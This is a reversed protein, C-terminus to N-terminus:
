KVTEKKTACVRDWFRHMGDVSISFELQDMLKQLNPDLKQTAKIQEMLGNKVDVKSV